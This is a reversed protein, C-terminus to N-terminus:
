IEMNFHTGIQTFGLRQAFKAFSEIKYGSSQSWRIQRVRREKAWLIYSKVLRTAAKLSSKGPRIYTIHDQAYAERSFMFEIVSGAMAGIIEGDEEVINCFFMKNNLNGILLNEVKNWDFRIDKYHFLALGEQLYRLMAPIDTKTYRRIEM